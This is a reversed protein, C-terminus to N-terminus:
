VFEIHAMPASDSLRRGLKVIRLYGGTRKEYKPAIVSFIKKTGENGIEKIVLRRAALTGKKGYTVLREVFPKVVKAKTVTTKMKEKLVLSRALSRILARRPGAKRSLKKNANHHRM